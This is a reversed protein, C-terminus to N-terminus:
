PRFERVWVDCQLEEERRDHPRTRDFDLMVHRFEHFFAFATAM